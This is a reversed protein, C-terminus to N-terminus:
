LRALQQEQAGDIRLGADEDRDGAGAGQFLSRNDYWWRMALEKERDGVRESIEVFTADVLDKARARTLVAARIEGLVRPLLALPLSPVASILALHLRHLREADEGAEALAHIAGLLADVCYWALAYQEETDREARDGEGGPGLNPSHASAGGVSASASRVLAAFALQATSLMGGAASKVDKEGASGSGSSPSHAGVGASASASRVLAAFALRLQATSLM